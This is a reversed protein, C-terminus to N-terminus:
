DLRFCVRFGVGDYHHGPAFWYRCAARCNRAYSSWSGGRLVRNGEGQKEDQIPKKNTKLKSYPGYYDLCWEWVNGHMDYLGFHNASKEGYSMVTTTRGLSDGEKGDGYPFKGNFNAQSSSLSGTPAARFHFPLSDKESVGGRCAYEWEAETPLRFLLGRGRFKESLRDCFEKAEDWSVNEVPFNSTDKGAM